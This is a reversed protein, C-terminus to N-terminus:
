EILKIRMLMLMFMSRMQIQEAHGNQEGHGIYGRLVLFFLQTTLKPDLYFKTLQLM